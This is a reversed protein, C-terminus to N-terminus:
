ASRASNGPAPSDLHVDMQPFPISIGARDLEMKVARILAQKAALFDAKPVWAWVSWNVSSAGLGQLVIRPEPDAVFLSVSNVAKELTERTADIDAAYDVGVDVEVRRRPHYTVNEITSGYIASNPVIIRRGDFTDIETSFLAIENVTGLFGATNVVDGVKFPRFILLMAGASFNSLTGQFALGIALGAAGIVAAFSTTDVGFYSVCTLAVLLLILWRVLRAIFKTLTEDFRVRSLAKQVLAAAWASVTWALILLVIVILVRLGYHQAVYLWDQGSLETLQLNRIKEVAEDRLEANTRPAAAQALLLFKM